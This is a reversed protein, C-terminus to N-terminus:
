IPHACEKHWYALRERTLLLVSFGIIALHWMYHSLVEDYMYGLRSAAAEPVDALFHGISNAALHMGQAEAWLGALVVFALTSWAGTTGDPEGRFIMWCLPLLVLPSFLDLVDGWHLLPYPGFPAPLLAPGNVLVAFAVALGVIPWVRRRLMGVM